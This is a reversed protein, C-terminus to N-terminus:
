QRLQLAIQRVGFRFSLFSGITANTAHRCRGDTDREISIQSSPCKGIVGDEKYDRYRVM